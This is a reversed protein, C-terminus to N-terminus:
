MELFLRHLRLSEDKSMDDLIKELPEPKASHMDRLMISASGAFRRPLPKVRWM